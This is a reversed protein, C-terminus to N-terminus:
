VNTALARGSHRRLLKVQQAGTTGTEAKAEIVHRSGSPHRAAIDIGRARDWAVKVTYGQSALHDRVALKVDDETIRDASAGKVPRVEAVTPGPNGDSSALM